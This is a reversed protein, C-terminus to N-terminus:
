KIGLKSFISEKSSTSKGTTDNIENTTGDTRLGGDPLLITQNGTDGRLKQLERKLRGIIARTKLLERKSNDLEDELRLFKQKDIEIRSSPHEKWLTGLRIRKDDAIRPDDEELVKAEIPFVGMTVQTDSIAFLGERVDNVSQLHHVEFYPGEYVLARVVRVITMPAHELLVRMERAEELSRVKDEALEEIEEKM